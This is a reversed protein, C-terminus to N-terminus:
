GDCIIAAIINIQLYSCCDLGNPRVSALLYLTSKGVFTTVLSGLCMSIDEYLVMCYCNHTEVWVPPALLGVIEQDKM